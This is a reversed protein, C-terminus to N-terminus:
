KWRRYEYWYATVPGRPQVRRRWCRRLWIRPGKTMKVGTMEPFNDPGCIIFPMVPYWAFWPHWDNLDVVNNERMARRYRSHVTLGGM